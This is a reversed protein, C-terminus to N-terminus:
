RWKRFKDRPTPKRTGGLRREETTFGFVQPWRMKKNDVTLPEGLYARLLICRKSEPCKWLELTLISTQPPRRNMIFPFLKKGHDRRRFWRVTDGEERRMITLHGLPSLTDFSVTRLREHSYLPPIAGTFESLDAPVNRAIDRPHQRHYVVTRGDRLVGVVDDQKLRRSM